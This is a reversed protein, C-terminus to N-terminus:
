INKATAEVADQAAVTPSIKNVTPDVALAALTQNAKENVYIKEVGPMALVNKVQSDQGTMFALVIGLVGSTFGALSVIEKVVLPAVSGLPSFIDTLQTGGTAVFGLIGIILAIKRAGTM